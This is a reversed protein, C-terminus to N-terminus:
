KNIKKIKNVLRKERETCNYHQEILEIAEKSIPRKFVIFVLWAKFLQINYKIKM